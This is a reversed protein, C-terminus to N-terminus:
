EDPEFRGFDTEGSPSEGATGATHDSRIQEAWADPWKVGHDRALRLVDRPTEARDEKYTWLHVYEEEDWEYVELYCQELTPDWGATLKLPTGAPRSPVDLAARPGTRTRYTRRTAPM